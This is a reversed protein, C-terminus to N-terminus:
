PATEEDFEEDRAALEARIEKHMTSLESPPPDGFSLGTAIAVTIERDFMVLDTLSMRRVDTM